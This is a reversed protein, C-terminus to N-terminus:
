ATNTATVTASARHRSSCLLKALISLTMGTAGLGSYVALALLLGADHAIVVYGAGLVGSLIGVMVFGILM